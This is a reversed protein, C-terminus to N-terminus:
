VYTFSFLGLLVVHMVISSVCDWVYLLWPLVVAKQSYCCKAKAMDTGRWKCVCFNSCIASSSASEM